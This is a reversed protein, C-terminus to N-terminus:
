PDLELNAHEQYQQRYLVKTLTQIKSAFIFSQCQYQSMNNNNSPEIPELVKRKKQIIVKKQKLKRRRQSRDAEIISCYHPHCLQKGVELYPYMQLMQNKCCKAYAF